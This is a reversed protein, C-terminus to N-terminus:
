QAKSVPRPPETVDVRMGEALDASAIKVVRDGERVGSSVNVTAGLDREVTVPAFHVTGEPTVVEVRVGNADALIATAPLETVRHPSSLTLKAEAYMGALLAGDANPIRIETSLTRSAADLAGATHAITGQFVRNPYERVTVAAAEGVRVGPAVDQPVDVFVRVPDLAAIRYLPATTAASVLAGREVLRATITGDFPAVVRSFAKLQALRAVNARQTGVMAKAVELNALDVQAQSAKQDLDQQTAVGSAVLKTYRDLTVQSFRENASAQAVSAEAQALQARGQLIEQDLEPTDIEVLVDGAKVHDGIDPKWDRVFGSARSYLVTEELPKVNGPLSLARDSTLTKPAVVEVRRLAQEAASAQQELEARAKRRPLWASVFAAGLVASVVLVGVVLKRAQAENPGPLDFGLEDGRHAPEPREPPTEESKM